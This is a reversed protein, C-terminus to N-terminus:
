RDDIGLAILDDSTLIWGNVIHFGGKTTAAPVPPASVAPLPLLAAVAASALLRRRSIMAPTPM